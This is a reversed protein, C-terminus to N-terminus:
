RCRGLVVEDLVFNPIVSVNPGRPIHNGSAVANSVCVVHDITRTKWPRMLATAAVTLPGVAPGYQATACPLCRAVTPGECTSGM